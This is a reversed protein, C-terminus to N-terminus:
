PAGARHGTGRIRGEPALVEAADDTVDGVADGVETVASEVDSEIEDQTDDDCAAITLVGALLAVHALRIRM